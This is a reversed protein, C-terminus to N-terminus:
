FARISLMTLHSSGASYLWEAACQREIEGEGHTYADATTHDWLGADRPQTPHSESYLLTLLHHNVTVIGHGLGGREVAELM